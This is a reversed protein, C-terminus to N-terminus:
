RVSRRRSANLPSMREVDGPACVERYRWLLDQARSIGVRPGEWVRGADVPEGSRLGYGAERGLGALIRGHDAGTIGLARGLKGPGSCWEALSRGQRRAQMHGLGSVPELGRLLVMGDRSGGKVLVNLLWYMGYNLYVYATGAQRVRVFERAGARTAVHCAADGEAAYAETEVVRGSCEGWVLEAGLLERAVLCVDRQFFEVGLFSM